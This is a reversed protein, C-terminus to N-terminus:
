QPLFASLFKQAPKLPTSEMRFFKLNLLQSWAMIKVFQVTVRQAIPQKLSQLILHFVMELRLSLEGNQSAAVKTMSHKQAHPLVMQVLQLTKVRPEELSLLAKTQNSELTSAEAELSSQSIKVKRQQKTLRNKSSSLEALIKKSALPLLLFNVTLVDIKKLTRLM